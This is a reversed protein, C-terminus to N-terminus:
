GDPAEAGLRATEAEAITWIPTEVPDAAPREMVSGVSSDTQASQLPAGVAFRTLEGLTGRIHAEPDEVMARDVLAEDQHAGNVDRRYSVRELGDPAKWDCGHRERERHRQLRVANGDNWLTPYAAAAAEANRYVVGGGALMRDEIRPQLEEASILRDIPL